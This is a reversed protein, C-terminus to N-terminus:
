RLHRIDGATIKEQLGNDKRIWLAGEQDIGMAQGQIKRGLLMAVVRKGSTSSHEEWERAIQEFRGEKLRTYDKELEMLIKRALEKRDVPKKTIEFLSTAGPPLSKKDSNVNIGIGLVVFNVRDAEASMETLIGCIKEEGCLIDNPWKISLEARIIKKVAKIVSLAATLTVKSVETPALGPRLLVSFLINKGKPSEWSRGLRGKGTKQYESFVAVGEKIGQEGLRFVATNTSDLEDYSYIPRGIVKTELGRTIEDAFMKDPASLFRYGSRPQAEIKYGIKRLSRMEKWVAARSVGLKKSIEEGSVFVDKQRLFDLIADTKM